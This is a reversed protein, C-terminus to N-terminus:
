AMSTACRFIRNLNNSSRSSKGDDFNAPKLMFSDHTAASTFRIDGPVGENAGIVTYVKVGGKKKGLKPDRDIGRFVLNSFLTVTTSDIIKLRGALRAARLSPQGTFFTSKAM